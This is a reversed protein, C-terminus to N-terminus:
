EEPANIQELEIPVWGGFSVLMNGKKCRLRYFNKVTKGGNTTGSKIWEIKFKQTDDPQSHEWDYRAPTKPAEMTVKARGQADKGYTLVTRADISRLYYYGSEETPLIVFHQSDREEHVKGCWEVSGSTQQQLAWSTYTKHRIRVVPAWAGYRFTGSMYRTEAQVSAATIIILAVAVIFLAIGFLKNKNM